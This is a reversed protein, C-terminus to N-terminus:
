QPEDYCRRRNEVGSFIQRWPTILCWNVGGQDPGAMQDSQAHNPEHVLAEPWKLVDYEIKAEVRRIVQGNGAIRPTASKIEFSKRKMVLGHEAMEITQKPDVIEPMEGLREAAVHIERTVQPPGLITHQSWIPIGAYAGDLNKDFENQIQAGAIPLSVSADTIKYNSSTEYYTYPGREAVDDDLWYAPKEEVVPVIRVNVNHCDPFTM